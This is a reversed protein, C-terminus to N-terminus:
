VQKGASMQDYNSHQKAFFASKMEEKNQLAGQSKKRQLIM